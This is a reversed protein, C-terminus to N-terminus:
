LHLFELAPSFGPGEPPTRVQCSIRAVGVPPTFRALPYVGDQAYAGEEKAVWLKLYTMKREYIDHTQHFLGQIKMFMTLGRFIPIQEINTKLLM